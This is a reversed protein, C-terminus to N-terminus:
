ILADVEDITILALCENHADPLRTGHGSRPCVNRTCPVCPLEPHRVLRQGPGLPGTVLPDGAGWTSITPTGVAAAMHLPGSDNTVVLDCAALGAALLPLDTQGGLDTAHSGAVQKTLDRETPGGFVVVRAGRAALRTALDAFSAPSWRRSPANGGPFLGILPGDPALARWRARAEDPVTLRPRLPDPMTNNSLLTWYTKARHLKTFPYSPVCDTLLLSRADTSTGRRNPIGAAAFLFASSFSPTLLVGRAYNGRRLRSVARAFGATGRTLPIVTGEIRAMTLLPAITDLVLVDHPAAELAPLAMVLDGLHNPARVVAGKM